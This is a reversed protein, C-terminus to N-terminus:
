RLSAKLRANRALRSSSPRNRKPVTGKMLVRSGVRAARRRRRSAVGSVKDGAAVAQTLTIKGGTAEGATGAGKAVVKTTPDIVFAQTFTAGGGSSGSISLGNAAVRLVTGNSIM